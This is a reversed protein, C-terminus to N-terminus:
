SLISTDEHSISSRENTLKWAGWARNRWSQAVRDGFTETEIKFFSFLNINILQRTTSEDLLGKLLSTIAAYQTQVHMLQPQLSGRLVASNILLAYCSAAVALQIKPKRCQPLWKRDYQHL